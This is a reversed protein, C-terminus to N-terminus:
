KPWDRNQQAIKLIKQAARQPTDDNIIITEITLKEPEESRHQFVKEIGPRKILVAMGLAQILELENPYRLSDIVVVTPLELETLHKAIVDVWFNNGIQDKVFETGFALLFDRVTWDSGTYLLATKEEQQEFAMNEGVLAALVEKMRKAFSLSLIARSPSDQKLENIIEQAITTKGAQALGALGIVFVNEFMKKPYAGHWSPVLAEQSPPSNAKM